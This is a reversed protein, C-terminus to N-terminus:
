GFTSVLTYLGSFPHVSLLLYEYSFAISWWVKFLLQQVKWLIYSNSKIEIIASHIVTWTRFYEKSWVKAHFHLFESAQQAIPFNYPLHSNVVLILCTAEIILKVFKKQPWKPLLKEEFNLSFIYSNLMWLVQGKWVYRSRWLCFCHIALFKPSIYLKNQSFLSVRPVFQCM